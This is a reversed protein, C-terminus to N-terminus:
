SEAGSIVKTRRERCIHLYTRAHLSGACAILFPAWASGAPWLSHGSGCSSRRFCACEQKCWPPVDCGCSSPRVCYRRSQLKLEEEGGRGEWAVYLGRGLRKAWENVFNDWSENIVAGVGCGVVCFLCCEGHGALLAGDVALLHLALGGGGARGLLHTNSQMWGLAAWHESVQM